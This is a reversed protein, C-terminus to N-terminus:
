PMWLHASHPAPDGFERFRCAFETNRHKHADNQPTDAGHGESDSFSLPTTVASSFRFQVVFPATRSKGPPLKSHPTRWGQLQEASVPMEQEGGRGLGVVVPLALLPKGTGPRIM